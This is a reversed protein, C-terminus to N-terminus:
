FRKDIKMACSKGLAWHNDWGVLLCLSLFINSSSSYVFFGEQIIEASKWNAQIERAAETVPEAALSFFLFLSFFRSNVTPFEPRNHVRQCLEEKNNETQKEDKHKLPEWNKHVASLLPLIQVQLILLEMEFSSRELEDTRIRSDEEVETEM